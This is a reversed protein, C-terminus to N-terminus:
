GTGNVVGLGEKFLLPIAWGCASWAIFSSKFAERFLPAPPTYNSPTNMSSFHTYKVLGPM